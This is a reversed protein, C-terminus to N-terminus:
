KERVWTGDLKQRLTAKPKIGLYQEKMGEQAATFYGEVRKTCGAVSEKKQTKCDALAVDRDVAAKTVETKYKTTNTAFAPNLILVMGAILLVLSISGFLLNKKELSTM